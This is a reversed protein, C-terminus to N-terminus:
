DLCNCIDMNRKCEFCYQDTSDFVESGKPNLKNDFTIFLGKKPLVEGQDNVADEIVLNDESFGYNGDDFDDTSMDVIGIMMEDPLDTLYKKLEGVNMVITNPITRGLKLKKTVLSDLYM